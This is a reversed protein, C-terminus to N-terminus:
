SAAVEAKPLIVVEIVGGNPFSEGGGGTYTVEFEGRYVGPTDTDGEIWEYSVEGVGTDADEQDNSAVEALLQLGTFADILLFRVEADLINAAAGAADKLTATVTPATDGQKVYKPDAM